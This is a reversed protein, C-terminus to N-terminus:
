TRHDINHGCWWIHSIHSIVELGLGMTRFISFIFFLNFLFYFHSLFYFSVFDVKQLRLLVTSVHTTFEEKIKDCLMKQGDRGLLNDWGGKFISSVLEFAVKGFGTLCPIKNKKHNKLHRNAIFDAIQELSVKINNVDIDQINLRGFLSIPYTHGDWSNNNALQLEKYSLAPPSLRNIDQESSTTINLDVHTTSVNPNLAM